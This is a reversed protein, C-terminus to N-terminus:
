ANLYIRGTPVKKTETYYNDRFITYVKKGALFIDYGQETKKSAVIYGYFKIKKPAEGLIIQTKVPYIFGTKLTISEPEEGEFVADIVYLYRKNIYYLIVLIILISILIIKKEDKSIEVVVKM